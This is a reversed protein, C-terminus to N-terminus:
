PSPKSSPLIGEQESGGGIGGTTERGCSGVIEGARDSVRHPHLIQVGEKKAPFLKV